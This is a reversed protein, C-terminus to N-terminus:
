EVSALLTYVEEPANGARLELERKSTPLEYGTKGERSINTLFYQNGYRHFVLATKKHANPSADVIPVVFVHQGGSRISLLARGNVVSAVTCEGAPMRKGNAVFAFPVQAKFRTSMQAQVLGTLGVLLLILLTANHKKTKM